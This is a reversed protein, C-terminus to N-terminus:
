MLRAHSYLFCDISSPSIHVSVAVRQMSITWQEQHVYQPPGAPNDSVELVVQLSLQLTRTKNLLCASRRIQPISIYKNPLWAQCQALCWHFNSTPMDTQVM